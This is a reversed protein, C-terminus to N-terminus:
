APPRRRLVLLFAVFGLASLLLLPTRGYSKARLTMATGARDPCLKASGAAPDEM